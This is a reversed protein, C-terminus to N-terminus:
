TKSQKSPKPHVASGKLGASGREFPDTKALFSETLLRWIM